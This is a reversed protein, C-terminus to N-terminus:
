FRVIVTARFLACAISDASHGDRDAKRQSVSKVQNDNARTGYLNDDLTSFTHIPNVFVKCTMRFCAREFM